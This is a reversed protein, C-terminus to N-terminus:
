TLDYQGVWFFVYGEIFWIMLGLIRFWVWQCSIIQITYCIKSSIKTIKKIDKMLANERNESATMFFGVDKLM